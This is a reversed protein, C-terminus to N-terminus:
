ILQYKKLWLYSMALYVLGGVFIGATLGIFEGDFAICVARVSFLEILGFCLFPIGKKFYNLVQLQGRAYYAQVLTVTLEAILSAVAAGYVGFSLTLPVCLIVNSLAGYVVSKLYAVDKGFPILFQVGLVNSWGCLPVMFAFICMLPACADYGAGFFVPVFVTSIGIHLCVKDLQLQLLIVM